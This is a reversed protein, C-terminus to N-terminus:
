RKLWYSTYQDTVSAVTGLIKAREWPGSKGNAKVSWVTGDYYDISFAKHGQRWVHLYQRSEVVEVPIEEGVSGVRLAAILAVVDPHSATYKKIYAM